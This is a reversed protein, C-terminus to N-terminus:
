KKDSTDSVEVSKDDLDAKFSTLHNFLSFVMALAWFAIATWAPILLEPHFHLVIISASALGFSIECFKQKIKDLAM